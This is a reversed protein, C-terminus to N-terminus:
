NEGQPINNLSLLCKNNSFLMLDKQLIFAFPLEHKTIHTEKLWFEGTLPNTDEGTPLTTPTHQQWMATTTPATSSQTGCLSHPHTSIFKFDMLSCSTM